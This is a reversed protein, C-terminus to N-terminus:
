NASPMTLQARFGDWSSDIVKEMAAQVLSAGVPKLLGTLEEVEATWTVIADTDGGAIQFRTTVTAGGGIGRSNIRLQIPESASAPQKVITTRLTGTLFSLAPRIRCVLTTGDNSEIQDLGPIARSLASLNALNDAVVGKPQEFRQEGQLEIM